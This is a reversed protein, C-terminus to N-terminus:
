QPSIQGLAYLFDDRLICKIGESGFIHQISQFSIKCLQERSLDFSIAARAYEESLSTSFVASDDTCLLLPHNISYLDAFHHRSYSVVSETKVNSTLCLEVPINSLLLMKWESEELCCVHGVRQPGFQLMQGVESSNPIEGCHLTIPFKENKARILAPEFTAWDGITPNGSLDVGVVGRERSGLALQVTEIASESNERRDISLLIRVIISNGNGIDVKSGDDTKLRASTKEANESNTEKKRNANKQFNTIGQLVAELYSNKTMGIEPNNKPTTRIELYRVNDNAFDEIVEETIRTITEHDTTLKHILDFLQFCESLSRSGKDTLQHADKLITADWGFKKEALERITADRVSGNLHAHVEVKPLRRCFPM